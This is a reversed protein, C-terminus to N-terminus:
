NGHRFKFWGGKFHKHGHGFEKNEFKEQMAELKPDVESPELEGEVVLQNLKDQIKEWKQEMKQAWLSEFNIGESALFDGWTTTGEKAAMMADQLEELDVGLMDAKKQLMDTKKEAMQAELEEATLGLHEAKEAMMAEHNPKDGVKSKFWGLMHGGDDADHASAFGIGVIIAAAFVPLAYLVFKKNM